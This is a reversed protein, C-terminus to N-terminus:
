WGIAAQWRVMGSRTVTVDTPAHLEVTYPVATTPLMRGARVHNPPKEAFVHFVYASGPLGELELQWAANEYVSRVIRVNSSKAGPVLPQDIPLLSTGGHHMIEVRHSGPAGRVSVIVRTSSEGATANVDVSQGDVTVGDVVSGAPLAPAFTVEYDSQGPVKLDAAYLRDQVDLNVDLQGFGLPIREVHLRNWHAPLSPALRVARRTAEIDLGLLGDYFGNQIAVESFMQHPVGETIRKCYTGHLVEPMPGLGDIRRLQVMSRWNRFAEIARDHRYDGIIVGANWVPWVTGTQYDAEGYRPDSM